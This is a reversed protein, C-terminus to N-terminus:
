VHKSIGLLPLLLFLIFASCLAGNEHDGNGDDAETVAGTPLDLYLEYTKEQEFSVPDSNMGEGLYEYIFHGNAGSFCPNLKYYWETNVCTGETCAFDIYREDFANSGEAEVTSETCFYSLEFYGSYPQGDAMLNVTIHPMEPAPGIDAFLFGFVMLLLVVRKMFQIRIM